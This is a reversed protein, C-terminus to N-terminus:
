EEIRVPIDLLQQGCQKKGDMRLYTNVPLESRLRGWSKGSSKFEAVTLGYAFLITLAYRINDIPEATAKPM